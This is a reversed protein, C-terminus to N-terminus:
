TEHGKTGAPTTGAPRYAQASEATLARCLALAGYHGAAHLALVARVLAGSDAAVAEAALADACASLEALAATLRTTTSTM